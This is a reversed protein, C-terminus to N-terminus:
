AAEDYTGDMVSRMLEADTLIPPPEGFRQEWLRALALIEEDHDRTM